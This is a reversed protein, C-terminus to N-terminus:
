ILIRKQTHLHIVLNYMCQISPLNAGNKIKEYKRQMEIMTKIEHIQIRRTNYVRIIIISFFFHEFFQYFKKWGHDGTDKDMRTAIQM